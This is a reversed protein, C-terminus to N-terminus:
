NKPRRVPPVLRNVLTLLDAQRSVGTKSFIHALHTRATPTSIGLTEAAEALTANGALNELMRAEAPTLGFNGAFAGVDGPAFSEAQTVFVAATAQPMVRTRLDGRALPLVHAISPEDNRLPVGIGSGAITAEDTRALSIANSLEENARANRVSLVGDVAYIPERASLMRRAASNAHLIRGHDGVILIGATFNDLTAALTQAEIKKTDLIDVITVARRIHPVLLRTIAAEDGTLSGASEHRNTTFIAIRKAERLVVTQIIDSIGQPRTLQAYVSQGHPGVRDLVKSVILPEGDNCFQRSFARTFYGTLDDSHNFYRKTWDASLGWTYAIKHRSQELDVLLIAGSVCKITRCIEALTDPWREPEIACDYIRGILDSLRDPALPPM